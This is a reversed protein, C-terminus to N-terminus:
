IFLFILLILLFAHISHNISNSIKDSEHSYSDRNLCLAGRYVYIYRPSRFPYSPSFLNVGMDDADIPVIPFLGKPIKKLYVYMYIM